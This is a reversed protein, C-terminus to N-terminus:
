LLDQPQGPLLAGSPLGVQVQRLAQASVPQAGVRAPAQPGPRVHLERLWNWTQRKGQSTAAQPGGPAATARAAGDVVGSVVLLLMIVSTSSVSIVSSSQSARTAIPPSPLVSKVVTSSSASWCCAADRAACACVRTAADCGSRGSVEAASAGPLQLVQYSRVDCPLANRLTRSNPANPSPTLSSVAASRLAIQCARFPSPPAGAVRGAM